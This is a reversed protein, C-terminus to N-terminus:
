LCFGTRTKIARKMPGIYAKPMDREWRYFLEEIWCRGTVYKQYLHEPINQRAASAESKTLYMDKLDKWSHCSTGGSFTYTFGDAYVNDIKGKIVANPHAEFIRLGKAIKDRLIM